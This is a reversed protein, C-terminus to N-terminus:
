PAASPTIGVIRVRQSMWPLGRKEYLVQVKEGVKYRESEAPALALYGDTSSGELQIRLVSAAPIRISDQSFSEARPGGQYRQVTRSDRAIKETIVGPGSMQSAPRVYAFWMAGSFILAVVALVLMLLQTMKM